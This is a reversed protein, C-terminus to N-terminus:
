FRRRRIYQSLYDLQRNDFILNSSQVQSFLENNEDKAEVYNVRANRKYQKLSTQDLARTPFQFYQGLISRNVYLSEPM